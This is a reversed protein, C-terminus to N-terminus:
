TEVAKTQIGVSNGEEDIGVVYVDIRIRGIRYLLIDRLNAKMFAELKRYKAVRKKDAGNHWDRERTLKEFFDDANAIEIKAEAATRQDVLFTEPFEGDSFFTEVPSDIESIYVLPGCLEALEKILPSSKKKGSYNKKMFFLRKETLDSMIKTRFILKDPKVDIGFQQM